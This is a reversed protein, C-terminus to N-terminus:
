PYVPQGTRSSIAEGIKRVQLEYGIVLLMTIVCLASANVLGPFKFLFYFSIFIFLWLFVIIGPIKHDVIYWIIYCLIM